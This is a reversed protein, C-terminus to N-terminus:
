ACADETHWGPLRGCDCADPGDIGFVFGVDLPTRIWPDDEDTVALPVPRQDDWKVSRTM